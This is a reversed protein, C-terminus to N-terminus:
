SLCRLLLLRCVASVVAVTGHKCYEMAIRMLLRAGSAGEFGREQVAAASSSRGSGSGSGSADSTRVPGIDSFGPWRYRQASLHANFTESDCVLREFVPDASKERKCREAHRDTAGQSPMRQATCTKGSVCTPVVRSETTMHPVQGPCRFPESMGGVDPPFAATDAAAARMEETGIVGRRTSPAHDENLLADPGAHSTHDVHQAHQAAYVRDSGLSLAPLDGQEGGGGDNRQDDSSNASQRPPCTREAAPPAHQAHQAAYVRDSGLSLAPLGGRQSNDDSGSRQDHSSNVTHGSSRTGEAARAPQVQQAEPVQEGRRCPSREEMAVVDAWYAQM